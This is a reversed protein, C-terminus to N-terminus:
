RRRRRKTLIHVPGLKIALNSSKIPPRDCDIEDSRKTQNNLNCNKQDIFSLDHQNIGFSEFQQRLQRIKDLPLDTTRSMIQASQRHGFLLKQCSWVAAFSKYDTDIIWYNQHGLPSALLM